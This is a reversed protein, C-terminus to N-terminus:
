ANTDNPDFLVVRTRGGVNNPGREVWSNNVGNGPTKQRLNGNNLESQLELTKGPEPMGTEPNMTLEWEREYYKNPPIGLVQRESKSLQLTKKFPSNALFYNHKNKKRKISNSNSNDLFIFSIFIAVIVCGLVNPKTSFYKM